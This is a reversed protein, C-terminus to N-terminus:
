PARQATKQLRDSSKIFIIVTFFTFLAMALSPMVKWTKLFRYMFFSDLFILLVSAFSVTNKIKKHFLMLIVFSLCFMTAMILSAVSHSKLYGIIGGTFLLISYASLILKNKNNM